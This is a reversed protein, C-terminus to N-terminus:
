VPSSAAMCECSIPSNPIDNWTVHDSRYGGDALIRSLFIHSHHFEDLLEVHIPKSWQFQIIDWLASSYVKGFEMGPCIGLEWRTVAIMRVLPIYLHAPSPIFGVFYDDLEIRSDRKGGTMPTATGSVHMEFGSKSLTSKRSRNHIPPIANIHHSAHEHDAHVDAATPAAGGGGGGADDAM